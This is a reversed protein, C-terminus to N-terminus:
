VESSEPKDYDYNKASFPPDRYFALEYDIVDGAKTAKWPMDMHSYDNIAAASWDSYYDIVHDLTEKESGNLMELDAKILPFYRTQPFNYYTTKIQQLERDKIMKEFIQDLQLPVPGFPLKRYISRTLFSEHEEYHNFDAFYLLKYLVTEGVNPKGACKELIYLLVNKFKTYDVEEPISIRINSKQKKDRVEDHTATVPIDSFFDAIGIHLATSFQALESASINRKGQEIQTIATRPLEVQDALEQQTLKRRTRYKGIREGIKISNAM